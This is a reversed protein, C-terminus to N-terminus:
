LLISLSKFGRGGEKRGEVRGEEAEPRLGMIGGEEMVSFGRAASNIGKNLPLL